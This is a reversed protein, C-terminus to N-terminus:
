RGDDCPEDNDNNRAMEAHAVTVCKNLYLNNKTKDTKNNNEFKSKM